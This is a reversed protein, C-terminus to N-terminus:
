KKFLGKLLDLIENFSIVKFVFVILVSSTVLSVIVGVVPHVKITLYYGLVSSAGMIISGEVFWRLFWKESSSLLVYCFAFGLSTLLALGLSINSIKSISTSIYLVLPLVVLMIIGIISVKGYESKANWETIVNMIVVYILLAWMLLVLNKWAFAMEPNILSLIFKPAAAIVAAGIVTLALGYRLSDVYSRYDTATSHPLAMTSFSGSLGSIAFMIMLSIYAVGVLSPNKTFFALLVTGFNMLIINFIRSPMNALGIKLTEVIWFREVKFTFEFIKMSIPISMIFGLVVPVSASIFITLGTIKSYIIAFLVALGFKVTSTTVRIITVIESRMAGLLAMSLINGFVMFPYFLAAMMIYIRYEEGYLGRGGWLILAIVAIASIILNIYITASFIQSKKSDVSGYKLVAVQTGLTLTGSILMILSFATTAYGVDETTSFRSSVIWFLLSMLNMYVTGVMVWFSKKFLYLRHDEIDGM